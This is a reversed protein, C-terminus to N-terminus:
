LGSVMEWFMTKGFLIAVLECDAWDMGAAYTKKIASIHSTLIQYWLISPKRDMGTGWTM